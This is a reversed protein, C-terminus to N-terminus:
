KNYSQTFVIICFCSFSCTFLLIQVMCPPKLKLWFPFIINWLLGLLASVAFKIEKGENIMALDLKKNSDMCIQHISFHRWLRLASVCNPSYRECVRYSQTLGRKNLSQLSCFNIRDRQKRLQKLVCISKENSLTFLCLAFVNTLARRFCCFCSGLWFLLMKTLDTPDTEGGFLSCLLWLVALCILYKGWVKRLM